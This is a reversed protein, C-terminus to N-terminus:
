KLFLIKKTDSYSDSSLRVFYMGSPIDQGYDNKANWNLYYRGQMYEKSTLVKVLKGNLDFISLNIINQEPVDFQIQTIPNFPNPFPNKLAYNTPLNNKDEHSTLIEELTFVINNFELEEVGILTDSGDRNPVLDLVVYSSDLNSDPPIIIYEDRQGVYISRDIGFMGNIIDDGEMGFFKNDGHNGAIFNNHYNGYLSIDQFGSSKINRLYQSKYTYINQPDFNLSFLDNFEDPLVPIYLFSDGFFGKIIDHLRTDGEEMLDRTNFAYENEGSYGNGLPNHAWLGFYCELGMAFYEEDFDEVPLDDQPNYYSNELAMNMAELLESQMWPSSPQIGYIHIFHLLEKFVVSRETSQNYEYVGEPFIETAFLDQGKVGAELLSEFNPNQYEEESNLLFLIANNSAISNTIPAKNSGWQSNPLDMLFSSLIDRVYVVMEESFDDQILFPIFGGNPTEIHTYRNGVNTFVTDVNNPLTIIGNESSSIDLPPLMPISVGNTVNLNVPISESGADSSAINIAAQYLGPTLGNASIQLNFYSTEMGALSGTFSNTESTLDAWPIDNDVADVVLSMNSTIYDENAIIQTGQTGDRNQFGVTGSNLTGDMNRYNIDFSGDSHLIIQFDFLGWDTTNWRVVNNFWIVARSNNVHYYVNGSSNSNGNDNYPNLDDFFGFIAPRPLTVSPIEDNLWVNENLSEWGVWGNANVQLYDYYEDFFRFEFPLQIIESSFQDNHNLILETALSEIDVWINGIEPSEDNVSTWFYGGQDPGGQPNQFPVAGGLSAEFTMVTELDGTNMVEVVQNFNDGYQLDLSIINPNVTLEPIGFSVTFSITEGSETINYINLGGDIENGDNYLFCAPDTNDNFETTGYDASFPATEFSGNNNISGGPRYVYLEDPPGQANGNGANPNVRYIILGSRNGPLNEEYMGDQTRYELIFYETDSNPSFIKYSNGEPTNLPHLTYTGSETIEPVAGWDFYKWQTFASPLQPPNGNSAMVDWGGVPTPAGTSSYHYYDPAGLVHGFEHCLVGVNFYWSESLMFLYDSVQAGNISVNQSFLSWRHPWLLDSWDGPNGYVVFSVADVYGDNNADINLLSSINSSVSNLANALLNHERQTREADGNYGQTNAATYPEYYARNYSDVYATNAGTFTGPYHYTNVLLSDHSIDLFYHKLSPEEEETQFIEDYYSRPQPFDPDDAFRIFINIQSIEGTSPADRGNRSGNPNNYFTKRQLYDSHEVKLGKEIDLELPNVSGVKFTSPILKDIENKEAYYYFGDEKSQIITYNNEDHLRRVYQDGTVFCRIKEGNPQTIVRPINDFWTAHLQQTTLFLLICLIQLISM